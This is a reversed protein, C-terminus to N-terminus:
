SDSDETSNTDEASETDETSETDGTSDTDEASDTDENCDEIDYEENKDKALGITCKIEQKETGTSTGTAWKFAKWGFSLIGKSQGTTISSGM